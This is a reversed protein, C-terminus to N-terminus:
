DEPQQLKSRGGEKGEWRETKSVRNKEDRTRTEAVWKHHHVQNNPEAEGRGLGWVVTQERM